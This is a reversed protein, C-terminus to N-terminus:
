PTSSAATRRAANILYTPFVQDGLTLAVRDAASTQLVALCTELPGWANRYERLGAPPCVVIHVPAELGLNGALTKGTVAPPGVLVAYGERSIVAGVETPDATVALGAATLDAVIETVEDDIASM